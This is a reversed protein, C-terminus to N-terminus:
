RTGKSLSDQAQRKFFAAQLQAQKEKLPSYDTVRYCIANEFEKNPKTRLISVPCANSSIIPPLDGDIKINALVYNIDMTYIESCDEAISDAHYDIRLKENDWFNIFFDSFIRGEINGMEYETKKHISVFEGSLDIRLDTGKVDFTYEKKSEHYIRFYELLLDGYKQILAINEAQAKEDFYNMLKLTQISGDAGITYIDYRIEPEKESDSKYLQPYAMYVEKPVFDTAYVMYPNVFIRGDKDIIIGTEEFIKERLEELKKQIKRNAGIADRLSCNNVSLSSEIADKIQGM